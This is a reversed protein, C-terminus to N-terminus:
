HLSGDWLQFIKRRSITLIPATHRRLPPLPPRPTSPAIGYRSILQLCWYYCTQPPPPNLKHKEELQQHRTHHIAPTSTGRQQAARMTSNNSINEGLSTWGEQTTYQLPFRWDPHCMGSYMRIINLKMRPENKNGHTTIASYHQQNAEEPHKTSGQGCIQAGELGGLKSKEHWPHRSKAVMFSNPTQYHGGLHTGESKNITKDSQDPYSKRIPPRSSIWRLTVVNIGLHLENPPDHTKNMSEKGVMTQGSQQLSRAHHGM